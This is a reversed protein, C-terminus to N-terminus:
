GTISALWDRAATVQAHDLSHMGDDWRLTVQAGADTLLRAIREVSEPPVIPDRRGASILVPLASLNPLTAPEYPTMARLLVAGDLVPEGSLLLSAAINAGNSFGVAIMRRDELGYRKAAECIFGALDQTRRALDELDFVGEALRRFFRPAGNELVPGRPSLLTARPALARGLPVLDNEDGGTGHLLLLVPADAAGPDLRHEFGAIVDRTIM